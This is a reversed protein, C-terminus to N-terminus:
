AVWTGRWLPLCILGLGKGARAISHASWHPHTFFRRVAFAVDHGRGVEADDGASALEDENGLDIGRHHGERVSGLDVAPSGVVLGGGHHDAVAGLLGRGPLTDVGHGAEDDDVLNGLLDGFGGQGHVLGAVGELVHQGVQDLVAAHILVRARPAELLGLERHGAGDQAVLGADVLTVVTVQDGAPTLTVGEEGGRTTFTPDDLGADQLPGVAQRVSTLDIEILNGLLLVLEEDGGPPLLAHSGVRTHLLSGQPRQFASPTTGHFAVSRSLM